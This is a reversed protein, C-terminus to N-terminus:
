KCDTEKVLLVIEHFMLNPKSEIHKRLYIYIIIYARDDSSVM